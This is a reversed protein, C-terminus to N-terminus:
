TQIPQMSQSQHIYIATRVDAYLRPPNIESRKSYVLLHYIVL